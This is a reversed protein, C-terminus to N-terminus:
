TAVFTMRPQARVGAVLHFELLELQARFYAKRFADQSEFSSQSLRRAPVAIRLAPTDFPYPDIAVTTADLPTM